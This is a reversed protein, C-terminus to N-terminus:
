VVKGEASAGEFRVSGTLSAAQNGLLGTAAKSVWRTVVSGDANRQRVYLQPPCLTSVGTGTCSETTGNPVDTVQPDPALFFVRSGDRSVIGGSPVRNSSSYAAGRDSILRERGGIGAPCAEDDLVGGAVNPLTTRDPGSGTCVNVLRRQGVGAFTDSLGDSLDAAYISRGGVLDGFARSTPDSPGELGFIAPKGAALGTMGFASSGDGSVAVSWSNVGALDAQSAIEASSLGRPGFLEWRTSGGAIGNWQSLWGADFQTWTPQGPEPNPGAMEPFFALTAPSKWYVSSFDDASGGIEATQGLSPQYNPHSVVPRAQWGQVSDIREAFMLETNLGFAGDGSLSSGYLATLMFREGVHAAKGASALHGLGWPWFGTGQGGYKDAPSVLEYARGTPGPPQALTTFTKTPSTTAGETVSTAVIRYQYTTNPQLGTLQQEVFVLAPGAGISADPLPIRNHFNGTGYEFRYSTATSHPNIRSTLRAATDTISDANTGVIEPKVADTLFTLEPSAIEPNGFQKATVVRFRYLTNPLLGTATDTVTDTAGAAIQGTSATSWATGNRSIELRYDTGLGGGSDIEASLDATSAGVNAAPLLTVPAPPARDDDGVFVRNGSTIYLDGSSSNMAVATAGLGANEFHIDALVPTGGSVDYEDAAGVSNQRGIYLREADPGADLGQASVGPIPDLVFGATTPQASAFREVRAPTRVNSTTAYVTGAGDVALHQPHNTAFQGFGAQTLNSVSVAAQCLSAATCIEFANAGTDVGYGFARVFVDAPQAADPDFQQVRRNGPDAVFVDGNLPSVALGVQATTSSALAGAGTAGSSAGPKCNAASSCVEFVAGGAPLDVDAGWARVFVGDADFQQVRRNDRDRVYVHGTTQDIAVGRPDDMEGGPGDTSTGTIGAKCEVAVVCIETWNAAVSDNTGGGQVVDRGWAREFTGDAAFRQIRHNAADVVYVQGTSLRVAVAQPTNFQGGLAGAASDVPFVRDVRKGASSVAPLLLGVVLMVVLAVGPRGGLSAGSGRSSRSVSLARLTRVAIGGDAKAPSKEVCGTRSM